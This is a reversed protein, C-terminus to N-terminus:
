FVNRYIDKSAITFDEIKINEDLGDYEHNLWENESTRLYSSISPKYQNILLIQQLTQIKKYCSIKELFGIGQNSDSLVEIVVRPNLTAAVQRERPYLETAGKVILVDPNFGKKCETAYVPRNSGYVRYEEFEKKLFQIYINGVINGVMLEHIETAQSMYAIIENENFEVTIETGELEDLLSFYEVVSGSIRVESQTKLKELLTEKLSLETTM